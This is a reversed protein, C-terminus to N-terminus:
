NTKSLIAEVANVLDADYFNEALSVNIINHKQLMAKTSKGIAIVQSPQAISNCKLFSDVNSPSTFVYIDPNVELKVNIYITEYAIIKKLNKVQSLKKNLNEISGKAQYVIVEKNKVL